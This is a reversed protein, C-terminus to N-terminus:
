DRALSLRSLRGCSRGTSQFSMLPISLSKCLSIYNYIVIDSWNDLSPLKLGHRDRSACKQGAGGRGRQPRGSLGAEAETMMEVIPIPREVQLQLQAEGRFGSPLAEFGFRFLEANRRRLQALPGGSQLEGARRNPAGQLGGDIVGMPGAGADGANRNRFVFTGAPHVIGTLAAYDKDDVIMDAADFRSLLHKAIEILPGTRVGAGIRPM